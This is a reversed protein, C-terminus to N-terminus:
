LSRGSGRNSHQRARSDLRSQIQEIHEDIWTKSREARVTVRIGASDRLRWTTPNIQYWDRATTGTNRYLDDWGCYQEHWLRQQNQQEYMELDRAQANTTDTRTDRTMM